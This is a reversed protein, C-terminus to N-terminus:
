GSNKDANIKHMSSSTLENLHLSFVKTGRQDYMYRFINYYIFYIFVLYIIYNNSIGLFLILEYIRFSRM